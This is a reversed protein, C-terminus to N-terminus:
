SYGQITGHKREYVCQAKNAYTAVHEESNCLSRAVPQNNGPLTPVATRTGRLQQGRDTHM